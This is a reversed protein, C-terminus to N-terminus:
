ASAEPDSTSAYPSVLRVDFGDAETAALIVDRATSHMQGSSDLLDYGRLV